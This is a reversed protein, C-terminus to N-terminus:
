TNAVKFEIHARDPWWEDSALDIVQTPTQGFPVHLSGSTHDDIANDEDKAFLTADYTVDLSFDIHWAISIKLVVRIEDGDDETVYERLRSDSNRTQVQQSAHAVTACEASSSAHGENDRLAPRIPLDDLKM